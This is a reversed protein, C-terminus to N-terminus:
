LDDADQVPKEKKDECKGTWSGNPDVKFSQEDVYAEVAEMAKKMPKTEKKM